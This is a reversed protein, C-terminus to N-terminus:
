KEPLHVYIIETNKLARNFKNDGGLYIKAEKRNDFWKNEPKYYWKNIIQSQMSM